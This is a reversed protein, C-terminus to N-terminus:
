HSEAAPEAARPTSATAPAQVAVLPQAPAARYGPPLQPSQPYGAADLYRTWEQPEFGQLRQQGISAVPLSASGALRQLAEIDSNTQVTRENFPVGRATLHQRAEDCPACEPGTYLLVPFRDVVQQLAYPLAPGAAAPAPATGAIPTAGVAAPRDSFTVRGDPGVSRYIPQATAVGALLACAVAGWPSLRASRM